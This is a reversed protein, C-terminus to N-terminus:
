KYKPINFIEEIVKLVNLAEVSNCLPPLIENKEISDLFCKLELELPEAPQITFGTEINRSVWLIDQWNGTEINVQPPPRIAKLSQQAYDLTYFMDNEFLNIQRIKYSPIWSIEVHSHCKRYKLSAYAHDEFKKGSKKLTHAYLVEPLTNFLHNLMDIEHSGLDMLVGVDKIRPPLPGFRISITSHIKSFDITERLIKIAPNFREVYGVAVIKERKVAEKVIKLGQKYSAALPKEIFVHKDKKLARLAFGVHSSTPSCIDVIDVDNILKDIDKYFHCGYVNSIIKKSSDQDFAGSLECKKLRSYIRLHAAGMFGLGIIGIKLM